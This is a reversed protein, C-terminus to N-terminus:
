HAWLVPGPPFNTATLSTRVDMYNDLPDEPFGSRPAWRRSIVEMSTTVDKLTRRGEHVRHLPIRLQASAGLAVALCLLASRSM